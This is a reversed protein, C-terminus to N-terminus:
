MRQAEGVGYVEVGGKVDRTDGPRWTRNVGSLDVGSCARHSCNCAKTSAPNFHEEVSSLEMLSGTSESRNLM